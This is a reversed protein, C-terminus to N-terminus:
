GEGFSARISLARDDVTFDLDHLRVDGLSFAMLAFRRGSVRALKPKIFGCVLSGVMGEGQCELDSLHANLGDDIELHGTLHIIATVFKKATVEIHAAVSNSDRPDQELHIEINKITVGHEAAAMQAAHLLAQELDDRGISLQVHGDRARKIMLLPRDFQDRKYNFHVDRAQLDLKLPSDQLLLPNAKISFAEVTPGTRGRGSGPEPRVPPDALNIIAGSLDIEVRKLDPYGSASEEIRIPKRPPTAFVERLSADLAEALQTVDSPVEQAALPFM